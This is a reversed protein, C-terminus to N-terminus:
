GAFHAFFELDLKLKAYFPLFNDGNSMIVIGSKRNASGYADCYWGPASGSHSFITLGNTQAVVWGLSSSKIEDRKLQPRLYERLGSASLRFADAPKPDLIEIMFKAFDATTTSLAAAAGYIALDEAAKEATQPPGQEIPKGNQDHGRAMRRKYSEDGVIRSSTMGFPELINIRMFEAFPQRTVEQVVSQLYSFGEGSYQARTGPTFQITLERGNRWNPFGTSHTLVHRTTILDLRPDGELFRRSTYKTLPTDLDMVGKECLKAVAYAFVPKTNSCAAFVTDKEVPAKSAADKVGFERQWIVKGDDILLM